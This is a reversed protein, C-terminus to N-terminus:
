QAGGRAGSAQGIPAKSKNEVRKDRRMDKFQGNKWSAPAFSKVMSDIFPSREKPPIPSVPSGSAARLTSLFAAIAHLKEPKMLAVYSAAKGPGHDLTKYGYDREPNRMFDYLWAESHKTGVGDLDMNPGMNTGSNLARHCDTCNGKFFFDMGRKAESSFVYHVTVAFMPKDMKHRAYELVGFGLVAMAFFIGVAIFLVKEGLKLPAKSKVM